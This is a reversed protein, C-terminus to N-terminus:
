IKYKGELIRAAYHKDSYSPIKYYDPVTSTKTFVAKVKKKKVILTM